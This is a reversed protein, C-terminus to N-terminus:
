AMRKELDNLKMTNEWVTKRLLNIADQLDQLREIIHTTGSNIQEITNSSRVDRHKTGDSNLWCRINADYTITEQCFKCPRSNVEPRM